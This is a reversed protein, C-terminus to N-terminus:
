DLFASASSNLHGPQREPHLCVQFVAKPLPRGLILLEQFMIPLPPCLPVACKNRKDLAERGAHQNSSAKKHGYIECPTGPPKSPDFGWKGQICAGLQDLENSSTQLRNAAFM